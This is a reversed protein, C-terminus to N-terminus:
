RSAVLISEVGQAGLGSGRRPHLSAWAWARRVVVVMGPRGHVDTATARRAGRRCAYQGRAAVTSRSSHM